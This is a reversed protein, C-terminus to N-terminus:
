RGGGNTRQFWRRPVEDALVPALSAALLSSPLGWLAGGLGGILLGTGAGLALIALLFLPWRELITAALIWSCRWVGRGPAVRARLRQLQLRKKPWLAMWACCLVLVLLLVPRSAGAAGRQWRSRIGRPLSHGPPVPLPM